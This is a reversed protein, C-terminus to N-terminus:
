RAVDLTDCDIQSRTRLTSLLDVSESGVTSLDRRYILDINYLLLPASDPWTDSQESIPPTLYALHNDFLRCPRDDDCCGGICTSRLSILKPLM